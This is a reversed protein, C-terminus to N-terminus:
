GRLRTVLHLTAGPGIAYESMRRGDELQAGAFILRQQDPPIGSVDQVVDKVASVDDDPSFAVQYRAGTLTVITLVHGRNQAVSLHFTAENEIPLDWLRMADSLRLGGFLLSQSSVPVGTRRKIKHKLKTLSDDPGISIAVEDGSALEVHVLLKATPRTVLRLTSNCVIGCAAVTNADSLNDGMFFLNQSHIPINEQNQLQQKVARITDTSQVELPIRGPASSEIYIRLATPRVVLLRLVSNSTLPYDAVPNRPELPEVGLLLRQQSPPIGQTAQIQKKISEIRDTGDVNVTFEKGSLAQIRLRM